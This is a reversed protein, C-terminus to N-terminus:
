QPSPKADRKSSSVHWRRSALTQWVTLARTIRVVAIATPLLAHVFGKPLPEFMAKDRLGSAALAARTAGHYSRYRAIVKTKLLRGQEVHFQRALKM